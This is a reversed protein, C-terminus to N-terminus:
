MKKQIFHRPKRTMTLMKKLKLLDRYIRSIESLKSENTNSLFDHM